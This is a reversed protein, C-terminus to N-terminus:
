KLIYVYFECGAVAVAQDPGVTGAFGREQLNQGSLNFGIGTFHVHSRTLPQCNQLLVMELIIFVRHQFRYDHPMGAQIVDHLLLICQIGFAIEGFGVAQAGTLKFPFKGLQVAPISLRICCRHQDAKSDHTLHMVFLHGFEAAILLDANQQCLGQESTRVVQQEILRGVMQIQFGNAPQLVEEHIIFTSNNNYGM